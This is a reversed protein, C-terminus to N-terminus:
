VNQRNILIIYFSSYLYKNKKIQFNNTKQSVVILCMIYLMMKNKKKNKTVIYLIQFMRANLFIFNM